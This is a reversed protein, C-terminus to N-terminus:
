CGLGWNSKGSHWRCRVARRVPLSSDPDGVLSQSVRVPTGPLPRRALDQRGPEGVADQLLGTLPRKSESPECAPRLVAPQNQFAGVPAWTQEERHYHMKLQDAKLSAAVYGCVALVQVKPM